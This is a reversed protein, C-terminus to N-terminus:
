ETDWPATTSHELWDRVVGKRAFFDGSGHAFKRTGGDSELRTAIIQVCSFHESLQSTLRSIYRLLELARQEETLPVHPRSSEAPQQSHDAM